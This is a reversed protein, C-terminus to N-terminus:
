YRKAYTMVIFGQMSASKIILNSYNKLVYENANYTSIAGCLVIRSKYNIFRLVNDLISGGVNDFYVDIGKKCYEKLKDGM